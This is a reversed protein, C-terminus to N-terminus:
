GAFYGDVTGALFDALEASPSIEFLEARRNENLNMSTRIALSWGANRLVMFKAHVPALHLNGGGVAAKAAELNAPTFTEIGKDVLLRASLLEGRDLLGRLRALDVLGATWTSLHLHAPGTFTLVHALIDFLSFRGLNSGFIEEDRSVAGITEAAAAKAQAQRSAVKDARTAKM